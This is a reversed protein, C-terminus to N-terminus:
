NCEIVNKANTSEDSDANKLSNADKRRPGSFSIRAEERIQKKLNLVDKPNLLPIIEGQNGNPLPFCVGDFRYKNDTIKGSIWLIPQGSKPGNFHIKALTGSDFDSMKILSTDYEDALLGLVMNYVAQEEIEIKNVYRSMEEEVEKRYKNKEREAIGM